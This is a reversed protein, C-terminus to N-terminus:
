CSDIIRRTELATTAVEVFRRRQKTALFVRAARQVRIVCYVLMYFGGQEFHRRVFQQIRLVAAEQLLERIARRVRNGRWVSQVLGAAADLEGIWDDLNVTDFIASNLSSSSKADSKDEGTGLRRKEDAELARKRAAEDANHLREALDLSARSLVSLAGMETADRLRRCIKLDALFLPKQALQKREAATVAMEPHETEGGEMDSLWAKKEIKALAVLRANFVECMTNALVNLRGIREHVVMGSAVEREEQATLDPAVHSCGQQALREVNRLLKQARENAEDMMAVVSEGRQNRALVDVGLEVVRQAARLKDIRVALMLLTDGDIVEDFTINDVYKVHREVNEDIQKWEADMFFRPAPNLRDLTGHYGRQVHKVDAFVQSTTFIGTNFFHAPGGNRGESVRTNIRALPHELAKEIMDPEDALVGKMAEESWLLPNPKKGGGGRGARDSRDSFDGHHIVWGKESNPHFGAFARDDVPRLHAPQHTQTVERWNGRPKPNAKLRKM